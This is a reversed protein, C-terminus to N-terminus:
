QAVAQPRKAARTAEAQTRARRGGRAALLTLGAGLLVAVGPEPIPNVTVRVVPDFFVPSAFGAPDLAFGETLDGLTLSASFRVSGPQYATFRLTALLLGDGSVGDPFAAGALGDGDPADLPLWAPGIVPSGLQDAPGASGVDLGWGLVPVDLDAVLDVRFPTGEVVEPAETLLRVTIASAAQALAATTLFVLLALTFRM